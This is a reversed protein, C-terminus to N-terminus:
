NRRKYKLIKKQGNEDGPGFMYENLTYEFIYEETIEFLDLFMMKNSLLNLRQGSTSM